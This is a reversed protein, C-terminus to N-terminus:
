GEDDDQDDGRSEHVSEKTADYRRGVTDAARDSLESAARVHPHEGEHEEPEQEDNRGESEM